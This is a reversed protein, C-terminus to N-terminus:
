APRLKPKSELHQALLQDAIMAKLHVNEARAAALEQDTDKKEANRIKDLATLATEDATPLSHLYRETTSLKLHGLREKVVQLDAGGALLWSAHAHRLDHVRPNFGLDAAERAPLWVNRRFWNAPIHPDDDIIRPQRPEDKGNARRKARYTAYAGRCRECKCKALNYASITGHEYTRDAFTFKLDVPEEVLQLRPQEAERRRTFLLDEPGLGEAEIHAKLKNVIQASLKFRRHKGNKPYEKVLFRKGEPHNKRTLEVVTRSVTLIHTKLDLDKVRLETLEGWRLGEGAVFLAVTWSPFGVHLPV